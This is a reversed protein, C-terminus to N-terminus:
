HDDETTSYSYSTVVNKDNFRIVLDKAEKTKFLRYSYNGYTWISQGNEIGTRWPPGFMSRIESQTTKGITINTVETDPFDQGVTACGSISIFTAILLCYLM